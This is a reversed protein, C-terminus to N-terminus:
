RKLSRKLFLNLHNEIEKKTLFDKLRNKLAYINADKVLGQCGYCYKGQSVCVADCGAQTVPGLCTKDNVLLCNNESFKCELCVPYDIPKPFKGILFSTIIRELEKPSIPCGNLYYDVKIYADLPKVELALPKYKTGYIKKFLKKRETKDNALYPIGGISACSGLAVIVKSKERLDKLLNIEDKTMASGEILAIDFPGAKNKGQALRWSLIEVNDLVKLLNDKLNIVSVECGECDTLDFIALKIKKNKMDM